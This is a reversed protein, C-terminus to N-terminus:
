GTLRFSSAPREDHRDFLVAPEPPEAARHGLPPGILRRAGYRRAQEADARGVREKVFRSVLGVGALPQM